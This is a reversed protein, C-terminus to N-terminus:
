MPVSVNNVFYNKNSKKSLDEATAYAKEKESFPFCAKEKFSADFVKWVIKNQKETVAEKKSSTKKTKKEVNQEVEIAAEDALQRIREKSSMRDTM